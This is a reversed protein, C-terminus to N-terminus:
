INLNRNKYSIAKNVSNESWNKKDVSQLVVYKESTLVESGPDLLVLNSQFVKVWNQGKWEENIKWVVTRNRPM